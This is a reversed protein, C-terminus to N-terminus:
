NAYKKAQIRQVLREREGRSMKPGTKGTKGPGGTAGPMGKPWTGAKDGKEGKPRTRGTM